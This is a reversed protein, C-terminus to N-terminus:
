KLGVCVPGWWGSKPFCLIDYKDSLFDILVGISAIEKNKKILIFGEGRKREESNVAVM